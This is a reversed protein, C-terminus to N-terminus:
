ISIKMSKSGIEFDAISSKNFKMKEIKKERILKIRIRKSKGSIQWKEIHTFTFPTKALLIFTLNSMLFYRM